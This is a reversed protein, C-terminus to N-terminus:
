AGSLVAAIKPAINGAVTAMNDEGSGAVPHPLQIRPVDPMGNSAAVFDGQPWFETTVLAISPLGKRATSISDRV